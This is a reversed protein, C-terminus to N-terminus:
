SSPSSRFNQRVALFRLKKHVGHRRSSRRYSRRSEDRLLANTAEIMGGYNDSVNILNFKNEQIDYFSKRKNKDFNQNVMVNMKKNFRVAGAMSVEWYGVHSM